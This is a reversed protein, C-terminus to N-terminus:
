AQQAILEAAKTLDGALIAAVAQARLEDNRIGQALEITPGHLIDAAERGQAATLEAHAAKAAEVADNGTLPKDVVVLQSGKTVPTLQNRVIVLGSKTTTETTSPAPAPAPAPAASGPVILGSPTTTADPLTPTITPPLQTTIM